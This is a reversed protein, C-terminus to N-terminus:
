PIAKTHSIFGANCFTSLKLMSVEFFSLKTNLSCKTTHVIGICSWPTYKLSKYVDKRKLTKVCWEKLWKIKSKPINKEKELLELINGNNSIMVEYYILWEILDILSLWSTFDCCFPELLANAIDLFCCCCCFCRLNELTLLFYIFFCFGDSSSSGQPSSPSPWGADFTTTM